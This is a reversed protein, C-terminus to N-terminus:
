QTHNSSQIHAAIGPSNRSLFTFLYFLYFVVPNAKEFVQSTPVKTEDIKHTSSSFRLHTVSSNQM